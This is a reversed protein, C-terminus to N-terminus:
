QAGRLIRKISEIEEALREDAEEQTCSNMMMQLYSAMTMCNSKGHKEFQQPLMLYTVLQQAQQHLTTDM